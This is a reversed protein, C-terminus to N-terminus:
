SGNNNRERTELRQLWVQLREPLPERLVESYAAALGRGLALRLKDDLKDRRPRTNGPNFPNQMAEMM